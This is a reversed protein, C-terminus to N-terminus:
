TLLGAAGIKGLGGEEWIVGGGERNGEGGHERGNMVAGVDGTVHM